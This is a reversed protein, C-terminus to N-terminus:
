LNPANVAANNSSVSAISKLKVLTPHDLLSPRSGKKVRSSSKQNNIMMLINKLSPRNEGVSSGTFSANTDKGTSQLSNSEAGEKSMLDELGRRNVKEPTTLDRLQHHDLEGSNM